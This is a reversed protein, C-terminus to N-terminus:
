RHKPQLKVTITTQTTKTQGSPDHAVVKELATLRHRKALLTLAKHTLKITLTRTQGAPISFRASGLSVMRKHKVAVAFAKVTTLADSGVCEAFQGPPCTVKLKIAGKTVTFAGRLLKVGPFVVGGGGGGGGGGPGGGGGGGGSSAGTTNLLVSIETSCSTEAPENCGAGDTVIDPKGDGNLDAVAIKPYTDTGTNGFVPISQPPDFVSTSGQGQHIALVNPVLAGPGWEAGALDLKGDGNFDAIAFASIRSVSPIAAPTGISLATPNSAAAVHFSDSAYDSMVIDPVGDNNLDAAALGNPFASCCPIGSDYTTSASLDCGMAPNPDLAGQDVSLSYDMGVGGGTFALWEDGGCASAYWHVLSGYETDGICFSQPDLNGSGAFNEIDITCAGGLQSNYVVDTDGDLNGVFMPGTGTVFASPSAALGGRGDGPFLEVRENGSSSDKCAVLVDGVHDGNFDGVTVSNPQHCTGTTGGAAPTFTGNGNNLLVHIMNTDYDSSVIDPKGDGNLDGLALPRQADYPANPSGIASGVGGSPNYTGVTYPTQSFSVTAGATSAFILWAVAIAGSVIARRM